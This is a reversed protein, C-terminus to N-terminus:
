FDYNKKLNNKSVNKPVIYTRFLLIFYLVLVWKVHDKIFTVWIIAMGIAKLSLAVIVWIRAVQFPPGHFPLTFTTNPPFIGSTNNEPVKIYIKGLIKYPGQEHYEPQFKIPGAELKKNNWLIDM